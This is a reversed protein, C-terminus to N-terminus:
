EAVATVARLLHNWRCEPCVEVTHVTVERGTAAIKAIEQDSRATGSMRGLQEGHIWQVVRLGDAGCVPCAQSAPTGHYKAATMLLFEADCIEERRIEGKQWKRLM